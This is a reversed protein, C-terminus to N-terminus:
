IERRPPRRPDGGEVLGAGAAPSDGLRGDVDDKGDLTKLFQGGFAHQASQGAIEEAEDAVVHIGLPKLSRDGRINRVGDNLLFVGIASQQSRSSRNTMLGDSQNLSCNFLAANRGHRDGNGAVHGLRDLDGSCQEQRPGHPMM